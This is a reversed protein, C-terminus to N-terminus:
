AHHDQHLDEAINEDHWNISDIVDKTKMTLLIYSSISTQKQKDKNKNQKTKTKQKKINTRDLGGATICNPRMKQIVLSHVFTGM